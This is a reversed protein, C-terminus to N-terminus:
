VNKIVESIKRQFSSMCLGIEIAFQRTKPKTNLLVIANENLFFEIDEPKDLVFIGMDALFEIPYENALDFALGTSRSTVIVCDSLMAEVMSFSYTEIISPIVVVKSTSYCLSMQYQDVDNVNYKIDCVSNEILSYGKIPERYRGSFFFGDRVDFSYISHYFSADSSLHLYLANTYGLCNGQLRSLFVTATTFYVCVRTLYIYSIIRRFGKLGKKYRSPFVPEGEHPIFIVKRGILRLFIVAPLLLFTLFVYNIILVEFRNINKIVQYYAMFILKLNKELEILHFTDDCSRICNNISSKSNNKFTLVITFM